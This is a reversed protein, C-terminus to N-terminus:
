RWNTAFLMALISAAGIYIYQLWTRKFMRERLEAQMLGALIFVVTTLYISGRFIGTPWFSFVLAMEGLILSPALVLARIPKSKGDDPLEIAVAWFQYFFILIGMVLAVLFNVWYILKFSLLSDFIFFSTLLLLILGTTYAARYLPVTKFGIAVLFVNEVLFMMYLIIGFIVSLFISLVTNDPLLVSFLGFGIFFMTPMIISMMRTYFDDTFIIGLGFWFCFIVLVLGAMLGFYRSDVPLQM